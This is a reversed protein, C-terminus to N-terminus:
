ASIQEVLAFPASLVGLDTQVQYRTRGRKEVVGVLGGYKGGGTLRVRDGVRLPVSSPQVSSPSVTSPQVSSPSASPSAPEATRGQIGALEAAYSAHM